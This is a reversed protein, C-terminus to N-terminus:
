KHCKTSMGVTKTLVNMELSIVALKQHHAYYHGFSTSGILLVIFYYTADLQIKNKLYRIILRLLNNNTPKDNNQM